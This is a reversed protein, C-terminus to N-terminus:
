GDNTRGKLYKSTTRGQKKLFAKLIGDKCIKSIAGM